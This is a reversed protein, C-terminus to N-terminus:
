KCGDSTHNKSQCKTCWKEIKGSSGRLGSIESKRKSMEDVKKSWSGKKKTKKDEKSESSSANTQEAQSSDSSSSDSSSAKHRHKEKKAQQELKLAIHVLETFKKTPAPVEQERLKKSNFGSLFWARMRKESPHENLRRTLEKIKQVYKRVSLKGQKIRDLECLINEDGRDDTYELIFAKKLKKYSQLKSAPYHYYWKRAADKLTHPFYEGWEGEEIHKLEAYQEFAQIHVDPDDHQKGKFIHCAIKLDPGKDRRHHGTPSRIKHWEGQRERRRRRSSGGSHMRWKSQNSGDTGTSTDSDSETGQRSQYRDHARTSENRRSRRSTDSQDVERQRGRETRQARQQAREATRRRSSRASGDTRTAETDRNNQEFDTAENQQQQQHQQQERETETEDNGNRRRPAM